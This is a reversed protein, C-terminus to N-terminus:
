TCPYMSLVSLMSILEAVGASGAALDFSSIGNRQMRWGESKPSFMTEPPGLLRQREESGQHDGDALQYSLILAKALGKFDPRTDTM